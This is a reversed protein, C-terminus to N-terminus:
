ERVTEKEPTPPLASESERQLEAPATTEEFVDVLSRAEGPAPSAEQPLDTPAPPTPRQSGQLVEIRIRAVRRGTSEGRYAPISLTFSDGQRFPERFDYASRYAISGESLTEGAPGILAYLIPGPPQGARRTAKARYKTVAGLSRM